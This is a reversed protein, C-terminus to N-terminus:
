AINAHSKQSFLSALGGEWGFSATVRWARGDLASCLGNHQQVVM